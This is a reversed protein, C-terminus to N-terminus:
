NTELKPLSQLYLWIAKLEDDTLNSYTKWPMLKADLQYGSPTVGTQITTFYQEETWYGPEGGPTINPVKATVSPDPFKGGALNQGHCTRCDNIDVLYEGYEVSAGAAPATVSTEHNVVEVPFPPLAGAVLLIKAMPKFQHGNTKHDIPPVTKLYAIISALDQDSLHSTALVAPMYLPKGNQDIGHRLAKVYDEDSFERGVGGEGATLNASDISGLPPVNFWNNIGSLDAGHCDACLTEVRHKGYAISAEDTPIVLNSPPFGYAKNARSNGILYLTAGAVLVLGVPSGLVIGLWKFFKKM